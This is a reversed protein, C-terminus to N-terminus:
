TRFFTLAEQLSTAPKSVFLLLDDAYLSVKNEVGGRWIGQIGRNGCLAIALPEITIAFLLPSLPCGQRTECHLNFYESSHSNTLVSASPCSYLVRIWSSFALGFGFKGLTTFLYNWEVRDFAKEADMSTLCESGVHKTSYLINFLRRTNYFSNHGKIFGTQDPSIVSPLIDELRHALVKAFIKVDTNLLSIPRYSACDLPDKDKKFLLSFVPRTLHLLFHVLFLRLHWLVSLM